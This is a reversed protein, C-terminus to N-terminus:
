AHLVLRGDRFFFEKKKIRKSKKTANEVYEIAQRRRDISKVKGIWQGDLDFVPLDLLLRTVRNRIDFKESIKFAILFVFFSGIMTILFFSLDTQGIIVQKAGDLLVWILLSSIAAMFYKKLNYAKKLHISDITRGAYFTIVGVVLFFLFIAATELLQIEIAQGALNQYSMFGAYIGFAAIAITGIYFPMSARQISISTTVKSINHLVWDEIGFAKSLFYLAILLIVIPLGLTPSLFWLLLFMGPIGFVVKAIFPDKVAEKITYLTSEVERAQKVYINQKSIIKARSQLIPMVQDDEAGDSVLVIGDAPFKEMVKDIQENIRKDSLFGIKGEGTLTVLEVKRYFKSVEDFKKIAGFMANADSEEPDALALKVAAELNKKKGLIPGEIKAKKGLDNDRDVCVVLIKDLNKSM